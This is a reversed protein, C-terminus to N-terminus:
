LQPEEYGYGVDRIEGFEGLREFSRPIHYPDFNLLLILAPGRDQAGDLDMVRKCFLWSRYLLDMFSVRGQSKLITAAKPTKIM